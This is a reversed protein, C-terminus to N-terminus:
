FFNIKFYYVLSLAHTTTTKIQVQETKRITKAMQNLIMPTNASSVGNTIADSKNTQNNNLSLENSKM